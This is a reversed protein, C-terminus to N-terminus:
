WIDLEPEKPKMGYLKRKREEAEANSKVMQEHASLEEEQEPLKKDDMMAEDAMAAVDVEERLNQRIQIALTELEELAGQAKEIYAILRDHIEELSAPEQIM